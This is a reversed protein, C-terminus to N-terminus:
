EHIDLSAGLMGDKDTAALIAGPVELNKCAKEMREDFSQISM